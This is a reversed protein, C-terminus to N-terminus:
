VGSVLHPRDIGAVTVIRSAVLVGSTDMVAISEDADSIPDSGADEPNVRVPLV